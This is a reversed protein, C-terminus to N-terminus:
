VNPWVVYVGDRRFSLVPRWLNAVPYYQGHNIMFEPVM